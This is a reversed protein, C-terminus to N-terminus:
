LKGIKEIMFQMSLIVIEGEWIFGCSDLLNYGTFIWVTPLLSILIIISVLQIVILLPLLVSIIIILLLRKLLGPLYKM